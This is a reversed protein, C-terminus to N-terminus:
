SIIARPKCAYVKKTEEYRERLYKQQLFTRFLDTIYLTGKNIKVLKDLRKLAEFMGPVIYAGVGFEKVDIRKGTQPGIYSSQLGNAEVLKIRETSCDKNSTIVNKLFDLVMKIKWEV